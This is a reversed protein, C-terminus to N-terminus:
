GLMRKEAWLLEASVLGDALWYALSCANVKLLKSPRMCRQPKALTKPRRLPLSTQLVVINCVRWALLRIISQHHQQVPLHGTQDCYLISFRM